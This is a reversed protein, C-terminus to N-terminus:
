ETKDLFALKEFDKLVGIGFSFIDNEFVLFSLFYDCV